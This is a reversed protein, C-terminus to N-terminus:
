NGTKVLRELMDQPENPLLLPRYSELNLSPYNVRGASVPAPNIRTDALYFLGDAKLLPLNRAGELQELAILCDAEGPGIPSFSLAEGARLLDCFEEGPHVGGERQLTVAYGREELLFALKKGWDEAPQGAVGCLVITM